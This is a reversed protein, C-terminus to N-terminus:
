KKEIFLMQKGCELCHDDNLQSPSWWLHRDPCELRPVPRDQYNPGPCVVMEKARAAAATARTEM